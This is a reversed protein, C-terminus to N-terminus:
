KKISYSASIDGIDAAVTKKQYRSTRVLKELEGAFEASDIPLNVTADRLGSLLIANAIELSHIGEQIPALLPTGHLISEAMNNIVNMHQNSSEESYPIECIWHDAVGFSANVTKCYASTEIENRIFEIKDKEFVLRGKEATIELRNTGPMEGTSTIFNGTTGDAYEM